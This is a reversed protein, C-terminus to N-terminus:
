WGKVESVTQSTCSPTLTTWLLCGDCQDLIDLGVTGSVSKHSLSRSDGEPTMLGVCTM